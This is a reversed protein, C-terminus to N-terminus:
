AARRAPFRAEIEGEAFGRLERSEALAFALTLVDRELEVISRRLYTVRDCDSECVACCHDVHRRADSM